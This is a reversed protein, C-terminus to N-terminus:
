QGTDGSLQHSGKSVLSIIILYQISVLYAGSVNTLGGNDGNWEVARWEDLVGLVQLDM